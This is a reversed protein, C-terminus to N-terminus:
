QPKNQSRQGRKQIRSTLEVHFVADMLDKTTRPKKEEHRTSGSKPYPPPHISQQSDPDTSGKATRDREPPRMWLTEQRSLHSRKEEFTESMPTKFLPNIEVDPESETPPVSM